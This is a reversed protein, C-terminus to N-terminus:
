DLYLMASCNNTYLTVGKSLRIKLGNAEFSFLVAKGNDSLLGNGGTYAAIASDAAGTPSTTLFMSAAGQNGDDSLVVMKLQYDNLLTYSAGVAVFVAKM